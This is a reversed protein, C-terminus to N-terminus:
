IKKNLIYFQILLLKDVYFPIKTSIVTMKTGEAEICYFSFDISLFKLVFLVIHLFYFNTMFIYMYAPQSFSMNWFDISFVQYLM